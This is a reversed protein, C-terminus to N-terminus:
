GRGSGGEQVRSRFMIGRWGFRHRVHSVGTATTTSGARRGTCVSVRLVAYTGAPGAHRGAQRMAERGQDGGGGPAQWRPSRRHKDPLSAWPCLVAAAPIMRLLHSATSITITITITTGVSGNM